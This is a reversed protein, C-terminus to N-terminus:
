RVVRLAPRARAAEGEVSWGRATLREAITRGQDPEHATVLADHATDFVRSRELLEGLDEVAYRAPIDTALRWNWRNRAPAVIAEPRWVDGAAGCTGCAGGYRAPWATGCHQMYGHEVPAPLAACREIFAAMRRREIEAHAKSCHQAHHAHLHECQCLADVPHGDVWRALTYIPRDDAREALLLWGAVVHAADVEVAVTWRWLTDGHLAYTGTRNM